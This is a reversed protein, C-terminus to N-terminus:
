HPNAHMDMREESLALLLLRSTLPLVPRLRPFDFSSLTKPQTPTPESGDHGDKQGGEKATLDNAHVHTPTKDYIHSVHAPVYVEVWLYHLM